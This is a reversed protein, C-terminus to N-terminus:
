LCVKKARKTACNKLRYIVLLGTHLATVIMDMWSKGEKIILSLALITKLVM